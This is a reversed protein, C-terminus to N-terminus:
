EIMHNLTRVINLANTTSRKRTKAYSTMTTSAILGAGSYSTVAAASSASRRGRARVLQLRGRVSSQRHSDFFQFHHRALVNPVFPIREFTESRGPLAESAAAQSVRITTRFVDRQGADARRPWIRHTEDPPLSTHSHVPSGVSLINM